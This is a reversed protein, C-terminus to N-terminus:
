NLYRVAQPAATLDGDAFDRLADRVPSGPEACYTVLQQGTDGIRLM